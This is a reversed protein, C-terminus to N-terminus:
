SSPVASLPPTLFSFLSPPHVLSLLYFPSPLFLFLLSSSRPLVSLLLFILVSSSPLYQFLPISLAPFSTLFLLSSSSLLPPLSSLSPRLSPEPLPLPFRLCLTPLHIVFLFLCPYLVLLYGPPSCVLPPLVTECPNPLPVPSPHAPTTLPPLPYAPPHTHM